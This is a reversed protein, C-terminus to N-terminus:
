LTGNSFQRRTTPFAHTTLQELPWTPAQESLIEMGSPGQYGAGRVAGIFGRLDFEGDSCFKRHDGVKAAAEVNDQFDFPRFERDKQPFADEVITWYSTLLDVKGSM